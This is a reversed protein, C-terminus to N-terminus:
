SRKTSLPTLLSPKLGKDIIQKQHEDSLFAMIVINSAGACLQTRSGISIVYKIIQDSEAIDM